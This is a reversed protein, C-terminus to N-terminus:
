VLIHLFNLGKQFQAWPHTLYCPIKTSNELYNGFFCTFYSFLYLFYFYLKIYVYKHHVTFTITLLTKSIRVQIPRWRLPFNRNWIPIFGIRCMSFYLKTLSRCKKHVFGYTNGFLLTHRWWYISKNICSLRLTMALARFNRREQVLGDIYPYCHQQHSAAPLPPLPFEVHSHDHRAPFHLM